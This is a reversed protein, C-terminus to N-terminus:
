ESEGDANENALQAWLGLRDEAKVQQQRAEERRIIDIHPEIPLNEPMTAGIEELARRLVRGVQFHVQNAEDPTSVGDRKMKAATHELRFVNNVSEEPGMHELLESPKIQRRKGLQRKNLNYLGMWGHDHFTAFGQQTDIGADTALEALQGNLESIQDRLVIRKQEHTMSELEQMLEARRTQIAFYAQGLAVLRKSPDANQVILYCAYRSLHIDEVLRKGGKGIPIMDGVHAFHDPVAQGSQECATQAKQLANQFKGFETYGITKALERASWYEGDEDAHRIQEFPSTKKSPQM